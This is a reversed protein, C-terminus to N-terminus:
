IIIMMFLLLIQQVVMGSLNKCQELHSKYDDYSLIDGNGYLPIPDALQACEDIYSWDASKTYRQERSRGHLQQFFDFSAGDCSCWFSSVTIMAVGWNKLRPILTHALRKDTYVGTRTKITLPITMVQSMSKVM